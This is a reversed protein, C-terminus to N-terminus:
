VATGAQVAYTLDVITTGTATTTAAVVPARATAEALATAAPAAM